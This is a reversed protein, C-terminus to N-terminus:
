ATPTMGPLQLLDSLSPLTPLAFNAEPTPTTTVEPDSTVEPSPTVEPDPTVTPTPTVEPDEDGPKGPEPEPDDPETVPPEYGPWTTPDDPDYGPWWAGPDDPDYTPWTTYDEPDFDPDDKPWTEPDNPDFPQNHVDCLSSGEEEEELAELFELLYADDRAEVTEDVRVRDYDVIGIVKRTEEPCNECAIHYMGSEKEEGDEDEVLIPSETCIELEVHLTCYEKPQDGQIFRGSTVRNGRLDAKCWETAILGSDKCYQQTVVDQPEAFGIDELGEHLPEMVKRWLVAAFAGNQAIAEQQDYGVWVAATYYPTYGAFWLDRIYNTTGTKGAVTMNPLKAATGTGAEVVNKLLENMYFVTSEQLVAESSGTNDLLVTENGDIDVRTVRTYTRPEKYMGNNAFTAYAAAMDYTSVGNTLGGLALPALNIDSEIKGSSTVNSEVLSTVGFREVMYQYSIEPTVLDRLISVAVTNTSDEVAEFVTTLGKFYEVANKPWPKETESDLMVPVDDFVSAPTILGLDLAPAYVALPKISSGPPRVTDTARSWSRSGEKGGIGGALAVVYGTRNDVVTIGSQIEQGTKSNMVLSNRDNYVADVYAQVEPDFCTEIRLGGYFLLQKAAEESLNLESQLDALVEEFVRDEYWTYIEQERSSGVERKLDLEEAIAADREAESIMGQECMMELTLNRRQLNYEPFRYPNRLSPNQTISILSACEALTLEDLEKGFYNLAATYVGNCRDGLYIYNLYWEMIEEKSRQKEFELATFIELIKREVTVDDYQTLNKILQQTLTSGGQIDQGTLMSLVGYGTRIWDVGPHTWFRKDEIAVTANILDKPLDEYKVWVRDEDGNLALMEVLEGTESDTYYMYTRQSIDIGALSDVVQEAQPMIVTQVYTVAFCAMIACTCVGILLLTGLTKLVGFTVRLAM